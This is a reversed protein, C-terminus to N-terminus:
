RALFAAETAESRDSHSRSFWAHVPSTSVEGGSMDTLRRRDTAGARNVGTVNLKIGKMSKVTFVGSAV